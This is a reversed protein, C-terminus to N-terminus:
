HHTKAICVDESDSTYDTDHPTGYKDQQVALQVVTDITLELKARLDRCILNQM